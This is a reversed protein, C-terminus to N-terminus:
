LDEDLQDLRIPKEETKTEGIINPQIVLEELETNTRVRWRICFDSIIYIM